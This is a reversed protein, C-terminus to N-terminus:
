EYYVIKPQQEKWLQLLEKQSLREQSKRYYPTPAADFVTNDRIWDLFEIMDEESFPHTEQSKNYGIEVGTLVGTTFVDKNGGENYVFKLRAVEDVVKSIDINPNNTAIVKKTGVIRELNLETADEKCQHINNTRPLYYWDNINIKEDSVYYDFNEIQIKQCLTEKQTKINVLKYM